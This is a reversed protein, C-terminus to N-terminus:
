VTSFKADKFANVFIASLTMVAHYAALYINANAATAAHSSKAFNVANVTTVAPYHASVHVTVHAQVSSVGQAVPYSNAVSVIIIKSVNYFKVVLCLIWAAVIFGLVAMVVRSLIVFFPVVLTKISLKVHFVIGMLGVVIIAAQVIM